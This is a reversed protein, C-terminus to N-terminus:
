PGRLPTEHIRVLTEEPAVPLGDEREPRVAAHPEGVDGLLVRRVEVEDDLPREGVLRLPDRAVGRLERPSTRRRLRGM